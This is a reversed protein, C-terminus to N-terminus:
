YKKTIFLRILIIIMITLFVMSIILIWMLNHPRYSPAITSLPYTSNTGPILYNCVGWCDKNRGVTVGKYRGASGVTEIDKIPVPKCEKGDCYYGIMKSKFRFTHTFSSNNTLIDTINNYRILLMNNINGIVVMMYESYQIKFTDDYTVIDGINKALDLPMLKFSMNPNSNIDSSVWELAGEVRDSEQAILDTAPVSIQFPEGYRVPDFQLVQSASEQAPLLQVNSGNGNDKNIRIISRRIITSGETGITDGNVSNEITLIDRYFVMNASEPPFPFIDTNIFTSIKANDLQPYISKKRMRFVPNLYPHIDTRIPVCISRGNKLQIHYGAACSGVCQDICQEVTKNKLCIGNITDNCDVIDIFDFVTDPWIMWKDKYQWPKTLNSSDM